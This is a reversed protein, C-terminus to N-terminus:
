ENRKDEIANIEVDEKTSKKESCEQYSENTILEPNLSNINENVHDINLDLNAKESDSLDKNESSMPLENKEHSQEENEEINSTGTDSVINSSGEVTKEPSLPVNMNSSFKFNTIRNVNILPTFDIDQYDIFNDFTIQCM